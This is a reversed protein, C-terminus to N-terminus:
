LSEMWLFIEHSETHDDFLYKSEVRGGDMYIFHPTTTLQLLRMDGSDLPVKKADFTYVTEGYAEFAKILEPEVQECFPCNAKSVYLFFPEDGQILDALDSKEELVVVTSMDVVASTKSNTETDTATHNGGSCGVLLLLSLTMLLLKM